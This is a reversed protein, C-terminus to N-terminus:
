THQALVFRVDDDDARIYDQKNEGHFISFIGINNDKTEGSRSEFVRYVSSSAIKSVMVGGICNCPLSLGTTIM